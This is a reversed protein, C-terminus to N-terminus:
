RSSGSIAPGLIERRMAEYQAAQPPAKAPMDPAGVFLGEVWDCLCLRWAQGPGAAAYAARAADTQGANLLLDGLLTQQRLARTTPATRPAPPAAKLEAIAQDALGISPSALAMGRAAGDAPLDGARQRSLRVQEAMSDLLKRWTERKEAPLDAPADRLMDAAAHEAADLRRARVLADVHQEAFSRVDEDDLRSLDIQGYLYLARASWFDIPAAEGPTVNELLARQQYAQALMGLTVTRDYLGEALASELYRVALLGAKRRLPDNPDSPENPPRWALWLMEAGIPYYRSPPNQRWWRRVDAPLGAIEGPATLARDFDGLNDGAPLEDAFRGPYDTREFCAGTEDVRVLRFRGSRALATMTERSAWRVFIFRVEPPLEVTSASVLKRMAQEIRGQSKFRELRHAELRGDMWLRRPRSFYIFTGADGWNDCLIDGRVKLTGLWTAIDIPYNPRYLGPGFRRHFGTLRFTVETACLVAVALALLIAGATAAKAAPLAFIPVPESAAHQQGRRHRDGSKRANSAQLAVAIRRIIQGGHITLLYGCVPGTLAVNRRAMVALAGVAALWLWHAIPVRRFNIACAVAAPVLVALAVFLYFVSQWTPLFELVGYTYAETQGSIRTWLLLPQAAADLPWPTILCAASAALMALVAGRTPLNGSIARGLRRDVAAGAAASWFLAPGLFYLGHMNVWPLMVAPLLWLRRASAGRRVSEVLAITVAMFLLTFSEPRVRIRTELAALALLGALVIWAPPAERRCAVAPVTVTAAALLTKLGVLAAFGGVGYLVRVIVQFLWHVNVWQPLPDISFPDTALVRGHAFMWDGSALHWFIDYNYVETFTAAAAAVALAAVAAILWGRSPKEGAAAPCPAQGARAAGKGTPAGAKGAPAGHLERKAKAACM